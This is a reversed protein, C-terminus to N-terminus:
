PLTLVRPGERTVAVTHEIHAARSGDSTRLTWGDADVRYTDRGGAMFWPEIAIVLGARLRPGRGRRGDNPVSPAEHMERGIGHGGHDTSLGYGAARGVEGIAASVDGLRGGVVAAAIGAELAAATTEVLALDAPRPTGVVFTTAADGTWGELTAGCDVSVLDGDRLRRDGPIGHLAVDNVSVCVVAPFPIPTPAPQYGLFPSRAGAAALIGRAVADLELSSTGVTARERVAALVQAVVRGAARMAAVERDSKLTIM